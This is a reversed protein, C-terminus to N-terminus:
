PKNHPPLTPKVYSVPSLLEVDSASVSGDGYDDMFGAGWTTCDWEVGGRMLVKKAVFVTDPTFRPDHAPPWTFLRFDQFCKAGNKIKVLAYTPKM